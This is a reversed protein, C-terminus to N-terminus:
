MKSNMKKKAKQILWDIVTFTFNGMIGMLKYLFKGGFGPIILYKGKRAARLTESAVDEASMPHLTGAVEKTEFPKLPEEFALQPTETDPPFVVSVQVGLPKLESRLADSFGRVAFKSATYGTYGIIGFFGAQSSINIITGYGRDIMGPVIYKCVHLTGFYNIEMLWRFTSLELDQFYGPYTVGASNIVLDPYENDSLWNNLAQDLAAYDRIDCSLTTVKQCKRISLSQVEQQTQALKEEDRALLCINAGESALQKALALGIGSSGGTIIANNFTKKMSANRMHQMIRWFVRQM